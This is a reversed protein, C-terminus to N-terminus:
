CLMPKMENETQILFIEFTYKIDKNFNNKVYKRYVKFKLFKMIFNIEKTEFQVVTNKCLFSVNKGIHM